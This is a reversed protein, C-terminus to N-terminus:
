PGSRGYGSGRRSRASRSRATSRRARSATLAAAEGSGSKRRRLNALTQATRIKQFAMGRAPEHKSLRGSDPCAPPTGSILWLHLPMLAVGPVPHFRAAGRLHSGSGTPHRRLTIATISTGSSMASMFFYSASAFTASVSRSRRTSACFFAASGTFGCISSLARAAASTARRIHLARLLRPYLEEWVGWM